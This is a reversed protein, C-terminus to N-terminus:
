YEDSEYDVKPYFHSYYIKYFHRGPLNKILNYKTILKNDEIIKIAEESHKDHFTEIEQNLEWRMGLSSISNFFLLYQEYTSLQARLTKGYMYKEDTSLITQKNLFKYTQFLHRFYHGLRHQHGGYYKILKSNSYIELELQNLVIEHKPKNYFYLKYLMEKFVVYDKQRLIEWNKFSIKYEKKPKLKIFYLVHLFYEPKYKKQFLNVLAMEGVEDVGFFTICYAINITALEILDVDLSNVKFINLIKKKYKPLYYDDPETSNLFHRVDFLSEKFEEYIKKFVKRNLSAQMKGSEYKTYQLESINDRHLKVLEFFHNEFREKKFSERQDRLTIFLLLVGVLSFLTGVVGGIFDGIQGTADMNPMEYDASISFHYGMRIYFIVMIGVGVAILAKPFWNMFDKEDKRNRLSYQEETDMM